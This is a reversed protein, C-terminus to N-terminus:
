QRLLLFAQCIKARNEFFLYTIKFYYFVLDCSFCNVLIIFLKLNKFIAINDKPIKIRKSEQEDALLRLPHSPLLFDFTGKPYIYFSGFTNRQIKLKLTLGVM